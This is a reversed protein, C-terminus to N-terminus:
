FGKSLRDSRLVGEPRACLFISIKLTNINKELEFLSNAGDTQRRAQYHEPSSKETKNIQLYLFALRLSKCQAFRLCCEQSTWFRWAFKKVCVAVM